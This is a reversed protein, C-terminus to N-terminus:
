RSFMSLRFRSGTKRMRDCKIGAQCQRQKIGSKIQTGYRLFYFCIIKNFKVKISENEDLDKKIKRISLNLSFHYLSQFVFRFKNLHLNHM